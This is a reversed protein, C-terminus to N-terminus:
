KLQVYYLFETVSDRKYRRNEHNSDSRYRQYGRGVRQYSGPRGVQRFIREIELEPIIGESNYSMLVHRTNVRQLLDRLALVCKDKRSWNSKKDDDQILGTKGRLELMHDFWGRAIVEPVHYYGSYQRTNYPPDLYLLDLNGVSEIVSNIDGQIAACNQGTGVVLEPTLLKLKRRANAQWTKVYAAYVGTTNAVSDAAEILAALLVYYEDYTILGSNKWDEVRHRIADIITANERTFYMRDGDNSADEASYHQTIFSECPSLFTDLFLLTEHLSRQGPYGQGFLDGQGSFRAEFAARFEPTSRQAQFEADDCVGAFQPYEDTVIYAQAFVYSFTMIDCATVDFGKRKLFSGVSATGAFADLARGSTIGNEDLFEGIFSLLKTKNGIYRM